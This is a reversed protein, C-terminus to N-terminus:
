IASLVDCGSSRYGFSISKLSQVTTSFAAEVRGGGRSPFGWPLHFSARPPLHLGNGCFTRSQIWQDSGASADSIPWAEHLAPDQCPGECGGDELGPWEGFQAIEPLSMCLRPLISEKEPHGQKAKILPTLNSVGIWSSPQVITITLIIVKQSGAVYTCMVFVEKEISKDLTYLIYKHTPM